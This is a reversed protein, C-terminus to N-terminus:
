HKTHLFHESINRILLTPTFKPNFKRAIRSHCHLFYLWEYSVYGFLQTPIQYFTKFCDMLSLRSMYTQSQMLSKADENIYRLDSDFNFTNRRLIWISDVSYKLFDFNREDWMFVMKMTSVIKKSCVSAGLLIIANQKQWFLPTKKHTAGCPLELKIRHCHCSM